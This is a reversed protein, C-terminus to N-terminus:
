VTAGTPIGRLARRLKSVRLQLANAPDDPLQQEWLADILEATPVPVGPSIALRALLAAEARGGLAHRAGDVSVEFPGLLRLEVTSCGGGTARVSSAALRRDAGCRCAVAPVAPLNVGAGTEGLCTWM